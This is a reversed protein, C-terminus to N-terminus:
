ILYLIAYSKYTTTKINMIRIDIYDTYKQILKNVMYNKFIHFENNNVIIPIYKKVIENFRTDISSLINLNEQSKITIIYKNETDCIDINNIRFSLGLVTCYKTKYIPTYSNKNYVLTINEPIVNKIIVVGM